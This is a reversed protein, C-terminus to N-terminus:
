ADTIIQDLQIDWSNPEIKVLRQLEYAIGVLSPIHTTRRFSFTRDYYGGGKGIRNNDSDFAVLPMIVLDLKEPEIHQRAKNAPEPIQYKNLVLQDNQEYCIFALPATTDTTILPVYCNKHARWIEEIILRTEVEGNIAIYIAIENSEKFIKSTILKQTIIQAAHIRIKESLKKRELCIKKRLKDM